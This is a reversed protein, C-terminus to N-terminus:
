KPNLMLEHSMTTVYEPLILLFIITINPMQSTNFNLSLIEDFGLM